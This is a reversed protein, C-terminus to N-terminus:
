AVLESYWVPSSPFIVWMQTESPSPPPTLIPIDGSCRHRWCCTTLSTTYIRSERERERERVYCQNGLQASEAAWWEAVMVLVYLMRRSDLRTRDSGTPRQIADLDRAPTMELPVRPFAKCQQIYSGSRMSVDNENSAHKLVCNLANYVPM